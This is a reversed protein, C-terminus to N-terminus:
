FSDYNSGGVSVQYLVRWISNPCYQYSNNCQKGKFNTNYKYISNRLQIFTIYLINAVNLNTKLLDKHM